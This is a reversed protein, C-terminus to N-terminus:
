DSNRGAWKGKGNLYDSYAEVEKKRYRVLAGSSAQMTYKDEDLVINKIYEEKTPRHKHLTFDM